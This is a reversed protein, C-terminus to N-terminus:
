GLGLVRFQDHDGLAHRHHAFMNLRGNKAARGEIV